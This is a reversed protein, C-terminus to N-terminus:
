FSQRDVLLGQADRLTIQEGGDEWLDQPFGLYLRWENQFFDQDFQHNRVCAAYGFRERIFDRCSTDLAIRLDNENPVECRGLSSLVERCGAKQNAYEQFSPLPCFNPLAPTFPAGANFYGTCANLRFSGGALSAGTVITVRGFDRIRIAGPSESGPLGPLNVARPIPLRAKRLGELTWGDLSITEGSRGGSLGIREKEPNAERLTVFDITMKQYYPSLRVRFERSAPTRDVRGDPAKAQVFFRLTEEGVPLRISRRSTFSFSQWEEDSGELFTAYQLESPPTGKPDSGSFEFTVTREEVVGEPGRLIVTEPDGSYQEELTAGQLYRLIVADAVSIINAWSFGLRGFVEPNPIWRRKGDQVLYVEPRSGKILTGDPFQASSVIKLGTPIQELLSRAVQRINEWKYGIERFIRESSVWRRLGHEVVYVEPGPGRLMTGDPFLALAFAFVLIGRKM